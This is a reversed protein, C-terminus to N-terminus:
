HVKQRAVNKPFGVLGLVLISSNRNALINNETLQKDKM